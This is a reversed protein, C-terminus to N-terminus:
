ARGAAAIAAESESLGLRKFSEALDAQSQAEAKADPATGASSSEQFGGGGMGRVDPADGRKRGTIALLYESEAIIAKNVKDKTASEDLKGDAGLVPTEASLSEILRTRALAPLDADGVAKAIISQAALRANETLLAKERGEAAEARQRAENLEAESVTDHEGEKPGDHDIAEYAKARASEFLQLIEGGRGAATVFDVSRAQALRDIIRGKKGEAVGESAKGLARISVGIHPALDNVADRYAKLVTAEAYLGPGRAKGDKGKPGVPDWRADEDLVASLDRLSREPRAAEEDATPHDWYMQTGRKFVKDTAAQELVKDSYFGSSGWGPSIIKVMSRGDENVASAENLMVLGSGTQEEVSETAMPCDTPSACKTAGSAVCGKCLEPAAAEKVPVYSKREVVKSPDGMTVAGAEDITYTSKYLQGKGDSWIFHDDFVERAWCSSYEGPLPPYRNRLARSIGDQITNFSLKSTGAAERMDVVTPACDASCEHLSVGFAESVALGLDHSVQAEDPAVAGTEAPTVLQLVAALQDLAAKLASQNKASLVKGVERLKTM